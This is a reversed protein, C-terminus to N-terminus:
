AASGRLSCSRWPRGEFFAVDSNRAYLPVEDFPSSPHYSGIDPWGASAALADLESTFEGHIEAWSM